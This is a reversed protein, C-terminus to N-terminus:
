DTFMTIEFYCPYYDDYCEMVCEADSLESEAKEEGTSEKEKIDEPEEELSEESELPSDTKSHTSPPLTTAISDDAEASPSKRKRPNPLPTHEVSYSCLELAQRRLCAGRCHQFMCGECAYDLLPAGGCLFFSDTILLKGFSHRPCICVDGCVVCGRKREFVPEYLYEDRKYRLRYLCEAGALFYDIRQPTPFDDASALAVHLLGALLLLLSRTDPAGSETLRLKTQTAAMKEPTLFLDTLLYRLMVSVSFLVPISVAKYPNSLDVGRRCQFPKCLLVQLLFASVVKDGERVWGKDRLLIDMRDCQQWISEEMFTHRLKSWSEPTYDTIDPLKPHPHHPYEKLPYRRQYVYRASFSM